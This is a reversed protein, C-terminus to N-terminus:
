VGTIDCFVSLWTGPGAFTLRNNEDRFGDHLKHKLHWYWAFTMFINSCTLMLLFRLTHNM